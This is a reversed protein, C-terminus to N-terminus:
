IAAYIVLNITNVKRAMPQWLSMVLAAEGRDQGQFVRVEAGGTYCITLSKCVSIFGHLTWHFKEATKNLM